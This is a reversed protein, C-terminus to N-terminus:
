RWKDSRRTPAKERTPITWARNNASTPHHNWTKRESFPRPPPGGSWTHRRSQENARTWPCAQTKQGLLSALSRGLVFPTSQITGYRETAFIARIRGSPERVPLWEPSGSDTYIHCTREMSDADCFIATIHWDKDQDNVHPEWQINAQTYGRYTAVEQVVAETFSLTKSDVERLQKEYRAWGLPIQKAM